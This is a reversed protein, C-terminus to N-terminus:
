GGSGSRTRGSSMVIPLVQDLIEKFLPLLIFTVGYAEQYSIGM